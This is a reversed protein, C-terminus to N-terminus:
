ALNWVHWLESDERNARPNHMATKYVQKILPVATNAEMKKVEAKYQTFGRALYKKVFETDGDGIL